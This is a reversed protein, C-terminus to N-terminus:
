AGFLEGQIAPKLAILEKALFDVFRRVRTTRRLDSHLLIYFNRDFVLENNPNPVLTLGDKAFVPMTRVVGFGQRALNLQMVHDMTAHRVEALPFPSSKQWDPHRNIEDWGLLHLGEGKPGSAAFHRELYAPSAYYGLALPFLKRAVADDTVEHAVRLSVDTELKAIDDFRDSVRINIDIEPYLDFFRILIPSVIDYAMTGTLSFRISGVEQKDLGTLRQQARLFLTEAEEAVPLLMEGAKTLSVGSRTRRLLQMGYATELAQIHRNIKAHTTGLAEAAGRLSGTRSVALFYPMQEWNTM